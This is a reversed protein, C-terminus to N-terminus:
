EFDFILNSQTQITEYVIDEAVNAFTPVNLTDKGPDYGKGEVFIEVEDIGEFQTCTLVLAKLALRGGDTNEVMDAFERTFNVKCVGDEVKVDILGCGAPLTRELPSQTSPGKALELVATNVDPKSYVMRTVPVVINASECPFYLQVPELSSNGTEVSSELNIDGREFTKSVDTGHTLQDVKQGGVLFEVRQVSDFETLTQVIATVMNSEAAADEMDLVEKSLDIRALGDSIDLDFTTNEPIVTRLGLRAANMDNEPSKVMMNLTAKAIGDQYAMNCMVPVLYGYNDQYYVVTSVTPADPKA